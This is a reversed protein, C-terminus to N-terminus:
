DICIQYEWSTDEVEIEEKTYSSIPFPPSWSSFTPEINKDDKFYYTAPDSGPTAFWIVKWITKLTM